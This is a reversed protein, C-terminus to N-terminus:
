ISNKTNIPCQTSSISAGETVISLDSSVQNANANSKGKPKYGPPYGHLKFYREVTHRLM